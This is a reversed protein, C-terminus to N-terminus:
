EATRLGCGAISVKGVAVQAHIGRADERRLCIRSDGVQILMPCGHQVVRIRAGPIVGLEQLRGALPSSGELGTVTGEDGSKWTSLHATSM